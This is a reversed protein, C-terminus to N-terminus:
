EINKRLGEFFNAADSHNKERIIGQLVELRSAIKELHPQSHPNFLIEALLHNDESLLGKAIDRHKSFTTGPVAKDSMCAAFVLTSAFPITLSYAMMQDHEWFSYEFIKVGLSRFFKRFFGAGEPDSERIIVANEKKLRRLDGFTPGFMPHVSVFRHPSKAYFVPIGGKISAIDALICSPPIYPHVEIFADITRELNVANILLDPQFASLDELGPLFRIEGSEGHSRVCKERDTEYVGVPHERCLNAALWSGMKGYGLIATKM